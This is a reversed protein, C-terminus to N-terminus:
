DDPALQEPGGAKAKPAKKFIVSVQGVPPM